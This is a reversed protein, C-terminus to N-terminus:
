IVYNALSVGVLLSYPLINPKGDFILVFIFPEHEKKKKDHM